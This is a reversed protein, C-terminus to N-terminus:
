GWWAMALGILGLVGILGVIAGAVALMKLKRLVRVKQPIFTTPSGFDPDSGATATSAHDPNRQFFARMLGNALLLVVPRALTRSPLKLLTSTSAEFFFGARELFRAREAADGAHKAAFQFVDAKRIDQAAWTETPFELVEPKDLYPYEHIAMWRAYHLLSARAYRFMRDISGQEEKHDLYRGIAQFFMTYFWKNEADLLDRAAIDDLPHVCRRIIAEAKELYESEGTLRHGDVLANLSNAPARGPGHYSASGSATAHGHPSGDLRGFPAKRGDDMDIVWRALGIAASRSRPDGTLFHHLM